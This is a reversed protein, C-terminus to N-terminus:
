NDLIAMGGGIIGDNADILYRERLANIIKPKDLSYTRQSRTRQAVVADQYIGKLRRSFGNLTGIKDATGYSSAWSRYMSWLETPTAENPLDDQKVLFALWKEIGSANMKNIDKLADTVPRNNIFKTPREWTEFKLLYQYFAVQVRPSQFNDHLEDFYTENCRYETSCDFVCFRRDASNIPIPNSGNTGFIYRAFDDAEYEAMHKKRIPARRKTIRSKLKDNNRHNDAGDAEEVFVLLKGEFMSNFNSYLMSNDDVTTYYAPGLIAMGFWEVFSNKGTGGGKIFLRTEDRFLFSMDPKLWPYQILHALWKLFYTPDYNCIARLHNIIPKILDEREEDSIKGNTQEEIQQTTEAKFGLFLNYTHSPCADRQPIFKADIYDRRETDDLWEELFLKKQYEGTQPNLKNIKLPKHKIKADNFNYTIHDGSPTIENFTAGILFHNKEFDQKMRHYESLSKEPVVYNNIIPKNVIKFEYGLAERIAQASSELLEEPFSTEGPLKEVCCGDHILVGISRGKDTLHRDMVMLAKREETQFVVSMLKAQANPQNKILRAPKGTKLKHLNPNKLWIQERLNRLEIGLDRMFQHSSVASGGLDECQENYLSIDGGYLLKLFAGKAKTRDECYEALCADREDCYRSLCPIALGFKHAFSRAIRFHCNEMDIDFYHKSLLPNRIDWRVSQLGLGGIPYLRGLQLEVCNKTLEYAVAKVGVQSRSRYYDSLKRREMAPISEDALMAKLMEEDYREIKSASVPLTFDLETTATSMGNSYACFINRPPKSNIPTPNDFLPPKISGLSEFLRSIKDSYQTCLHRLESWNTHGLSNLNGRPILECVRTLEFAYTLTRIIQTNTSPSDSAMHVAFDLM